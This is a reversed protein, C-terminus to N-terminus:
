VENRQEVAYIYDYLALSFADQKGALEYLLKGAAKKREDDQAGAIAEGRQHLMMALNGVDVADGKEVHERLLNSLYERSCAAKDEWGYRGQERKAKLKAKMAAAFADVAIDDAHEAKREHVRAVEQLVCRVIATAAERTGLHAFAWLAQNVERTDKIREAEAQSVNITM